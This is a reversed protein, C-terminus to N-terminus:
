NENEGFVEPLLLPTDLARLKIATLDSEIVSEVRFRREPELLIEAEDPFLSYPQVDYGWGDDIVFLTGRVSGDASGKALFGKTANMDPSTSSLGRWVITSGEKYLSVDVGDRVGRYLTKGTCTPLRRLSGMVLYLLGSAKGLAAEDSTMLAKNIIRYPNININDGGFDFTYLAVAAADEKTFGDPLKGESEASDGVLACM